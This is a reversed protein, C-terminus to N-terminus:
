RVRMRPVRMGCQDTAVAGTPSPVDWTQAKALINLQGPRRAAGSKHKLVKM